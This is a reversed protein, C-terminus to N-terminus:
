SYVTPHKWWKRRTVPQKMSAAPMFSIRSTLSMWPKRMLCRRWSTSTTSATGNGCQMWGQPTCRISVTRTTKVASYLSFSFFCCCFCVDTDPFDQGHSLLQAGEACSPFPASSSRLAATSLLFAVSLMPFLLGLDAGRHFKFVLDIPM